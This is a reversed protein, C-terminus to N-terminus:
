FRYKAGIVLEHMSMNRKVTATADSADIDGLDTFRYSISAAISDTIDYEAGAGISWAFNRNTTEPSEMELSEDNVPTRVYDAIKISGTEKIEAVGLGVMVFPKIAYGFDHTYSANFMATAISTDLGFKNRMFCTENTCTPGEPQMVWDGTASSESFKALEIEAGFGRWEYGAAIKLSAIGDSLKEDSITTPNAELGSVTQYAKNNFDAYSGRVAGYFGAHASTTTIVALAAIISLKKMINGKRNTATKVLTFVVLSVPPRANEFDYQSSGTTKLCTRIAVRYGVM